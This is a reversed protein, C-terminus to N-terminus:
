SNPLSLTRHADSSLLKFVIKTCGSFQTEMQHTEPSLVGFYLVKVYKINQASSIQSIAPAPLVKQGEEAGFVRM